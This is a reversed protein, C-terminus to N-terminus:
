KNGPLSVNNVTKSLTTLIPLACTTQLFTSTDLGEVLCIAVARPRSELAKLRVGKPKPRTPGAHLLALALDRVASLKVPNHMGAEAETGPFEVVEPQGLQLGAARAAM